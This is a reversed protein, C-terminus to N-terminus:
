ECPLNEFIFLTSFGELSLHYVLRRGGWTMGWIKQRRGGGPAAKVTPFSLSRLPRWIWIYLDCQMLVKAHCPFSRLLASGEVHVPTEEMETLVWILHTLCGHHRWEERDEIICVQLKNKIEERPCFLAKKKKKEGQLIFSGGESFPPVHCFMYALIHKDQSAWNIDTDQASIAWTHQLSPCGM